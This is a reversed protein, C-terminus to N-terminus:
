IVYICVRAIHKRSYVFIIDRHLKNRCVEPCIKPLDLGKEDCFYGSYCVSCDQISIAASAKRYFGIPCPYSHKAGTGEPCYHGPPCEAVQPDIHM